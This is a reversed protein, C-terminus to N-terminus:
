KKRKPANELGRIYRKPIQYKDVLLNYVFLVQNGQVLLQETKKGPPISVSTSAAVGHQCEKAFELIKVGFLELNDVLTVKKNGSRNAVSITIPSVKGKNLIEKQNTQVKFCNKMSDCVKEYVEEWAIPNTNKCISSLAEDPQVLKSNEHQCNRLMIYERIYKRVDSGLITDGKQWKPRSFNLIPLVANTVVYSEIVSPTGSSSCDEQNKRPREEPSVYFGEFKPHSKNVEVISEVGKKMEKVVIINEKCMKDLFPKLKKFSSKKIDLTKGPPCNALMQLKYFNSTLIPLTLTKSYKIATFFCNYLLEDVDEITMEKTIENTELMNKDNDISEEKKEKDDAPSNNAGESQPTDGPSSLNQSLKRKPRAGLPPFDDDKQFTLWEPPGMQPIPSDFGELTFLKDGYTHIVSVCKGKKGSAEMEVSSMTAFGVAISAKNTSLNIAVISDKQIACGYKPLSTQAPPTLVGPLMLDAGSYIFNMVEKHTTFNHIINPFQWLLCITPFIKDHLEFCIPRKLVTYVQIIENSATVIKVCNLGEKKPLLNNLDEETLTPYQKHIKDKVHKRESSKVPTNSKIKIPKRFM